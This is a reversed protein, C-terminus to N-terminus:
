FTIRVMFNQNEEAIVKIFQEVTEDLSLNSVELQM